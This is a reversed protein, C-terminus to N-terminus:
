RGHDSRRDAAHRNGLIDRQRRQGRQADSRDRATEEGADGALLDHIGKPGCARVRQHQRAPGIHHEGVVEVTQGDHPEGVGSDGHVAGDHPGLGPRHPVVDDGGRQRVSQAPQFAQRPDGPRRARGGHLVDAGVTGLDGVGDAPDPQQVPIGALIAPNDGSM